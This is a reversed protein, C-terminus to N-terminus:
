GESGSPSERNFYRLLLPRGFIAVVILLGLSALALPDTSILRIVLAISAAAGALAGPGTIIRQGARQRFALGCVVAFTFLFALSAAEVLITLSGVAALLAAFGGLIIVARDPVGASNNHMLGIPLEGDSAVKNSFRATAFLTANIASGTSFAVAVTMIVLGATGLMKQGAVALAIEKYEVVQDAGILMVTGLAVIVYVIIVVVIASLLARPLTKKPNDIDEYDYTLLQFGEYAMFVSAAGFLAAGIGGNPVGQSLM